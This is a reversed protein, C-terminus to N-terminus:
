VGGLGWALRLDCVASFRGQPTHNSKQGPSYLVSLCSCLSWLGWVGRQRYVRSWPFSLAELVYAALTIKSYGGTRTGSNLAPVGAVRFKYDWPNYLVRFSLSRCVRFGSSRLPISEVRLGM